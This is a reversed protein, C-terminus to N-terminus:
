QLPGVLSGIFNKVDAKNRADAAIISGEVGAATLVNQYEDPTPHVSQDTQTTVVLLKSSSVLQKFAELYYLLDAKPTEATNDIMVVVASCDKAIDQQLMDWMFEFRIQGPAGYMHVKEGALTTVRGYDIAVTTTEKNTISEESVKAETNVPAIESVTQIASTKGAGVPGIFVIKLNDM